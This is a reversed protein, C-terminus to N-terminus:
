GVAASNGDTPELVYQLNVLFNSLSIYMSCLVACHVSIGLFPDIDTVTYGKMKFCFLSSSFHKDVVVNCSDIKVTSLQRVLFYLIIAPFLDFISKLNVCHVLSINTLIKFFLASCM